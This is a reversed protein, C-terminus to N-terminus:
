YFKFFFIFFIGSLLPSQSRQHRPRPGLRFGRGVSSRWRRRRRQPRQRPDEVQATRHTRPQPRGGSRDQHPHVSLLLRRSAAIRSQLPPGQRRFLHPLPHGAAARWFDGHGDAREADRLETWISALLKMWNRKKKKKKEKKKEIRLNQWKIINKM